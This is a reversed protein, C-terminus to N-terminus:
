SSLSYNRYKECVDVGDELGGIEESDPGEDVGKNDSDSGVVTVNDWKVEKVLEGLKL